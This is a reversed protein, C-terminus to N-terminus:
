RGEGGPTPGDPLGPDLQQPLHVSGTRLKTVLNSHVITNFALSYDIFLMRVYTNRKDLYILATHLAISIAEDISRNPHYAFKIHRVAHESFAGQFVTPGRPRAPTSRILYKKKMDAESLSTVLYDPDTVARVGPVINNNDLRANFANLNTQHLPMTLCIVTPDEKTISQLGQWMRRADSGTYYSEM